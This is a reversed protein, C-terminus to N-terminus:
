NRDMTKPINIKSSFLIGSISFKPESYIKTLKQFSMVKPPIFIFIHAQTQKSSSIKFQFKPKQNISKRDIAESINIKLSLSLLFEFNQDM